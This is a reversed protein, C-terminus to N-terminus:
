NKLCRISFGNKKNVAVLSANDAIYHLHMVYADDGNKETSTWFDAYDGEGSDSGGTLRDGASLASFFYANAGNGKNNWGSESKLSKGAVKPGGVTAVLTKFEEKSPMHWGSPCAKKAADWEYLRGYKACNLENDNYCYSNETKVNLNEAMWVQNGINVTKYDDKKNKGNDECAIFLMSLSLALIIKKM